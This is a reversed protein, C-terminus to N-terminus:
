DVFSRAFSNGSAPTASERQEQTKKYSKLEIIYDRRQYEFAMALLLVHQSCRNSYISEELHIHRFYINGYLPTFFKIPLVADIALFFLACFTLISKCPLASHLKPINRPEM